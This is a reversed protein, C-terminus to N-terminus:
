RMPSLDTTSAMIYSPKNQAKSTHAMPAPVSFYVLAAWPMVRSRWSAKAAADCSRADAAWFSPRKASSITLTDTGCRLPSGSTTSVSSPTRGPVVASLRPPSRGANSASPVMVAPLADCIESPPAATTTIDFAAASRAPTM